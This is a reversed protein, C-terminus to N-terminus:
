LTAVIVRVWPPNLHTSVWRAALADAPPLGYAVGRASPQTRPTARRRAANWVANESRGTPLLWDPASRARPHELGDRDDHHASRSLPKQQSCEPRPAHAGPRSRPRAEQRALGVTRACAAPALATSLRGTSGARVRAHFPRARATQTHGRADDAGARRARRSDRLAAGDQPGAPHRGPRASDRRRCQRLRAAHRASRRRRPRTRRHDPERRMRFRMMGKIM